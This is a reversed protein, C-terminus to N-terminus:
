LHGKPNVGCKVRHIASAAQITRFHAFGLTTPTGATLGGEGMFVGQFYTLLRKNRSGEYNLHAVILVLIRPPSYSAIGVMPAAVSQIKVYQHTSKNLLLSQNYSLRLTKTKRGPSIGM